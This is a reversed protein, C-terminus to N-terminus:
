RSGPASRNGSVARLPVGAMIGVGSFVDPAQEALIAAMAGGASLGAVYIRNRDVPFRRVIDDVLRLIGAPEGDGRAQHKPNFWNWCRLGNARWSQEPYVVVAGYREAVEDFRTGAAFEAGNQRCGNLAVLLQTPGRRGLDSPLFLRHAM